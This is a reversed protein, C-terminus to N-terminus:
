PMTESLKYVEHDTLVSVFDMITAIRYYKNSKILNKYLENSSYKSNIEKINLEKKITLHIPFTPNEIKNIVENLFDNSNKYYWDCLAKVRSKNLQSGRAMFYKNHLKERIFIKLKDFVENVIHSFSIEFSESNLTKELKNINNSIIDSIFITLLESGNIPIESFANKIRLELTSNIDRTNKIIDMIQSNKLIKNNFGEELDSVVWAIDDAYRVIQAEYTLDDKGSLTIEKGDIETIFNFTKDTNFNKVSHRWIGYMVPKSFGLYDSNRKLSLIRFSQRGHLFFKEDPDNGFTFFIKVKKRVTENEISEELIPIKSSLKRQRKKKVNLKEIIWEELADEGIHAFPAHGVDHGLAITEVLDENLKLGRAISRSIQMVKLSHTLRNETLNIKETTFLQTKDALRQFISSYLIKDRELQFPTRYRNRQMKVSDSGDFVKQYHDNFSTGDLFIVDLSSFAYNGYKEELNRLWSKYKEFDSM